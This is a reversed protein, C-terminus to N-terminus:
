SRYSELIEEPQSTANVTNFDGRLTKLAYIEEEIEQHTRIRMARFLPLPPCWGQLGYQLLFGAAVATLLYWKRNVFTGLVLGSLALAASNVEFTKEIDWEKKLEELRQTIEDASMESYKMIQKNIRLDMKLNERERTNERVRERINSEASEM